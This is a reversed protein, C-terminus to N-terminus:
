INKQQYPLVDKVKANKPPPTNTIHLNGNEDTWTYVKGAQASFALLFLFIITLTVLARKPKM